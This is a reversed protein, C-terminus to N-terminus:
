LFRLQMMNGTLNRLNWNAIALVIHEVVQVTERGSEQRRVDNGKLQWCFLHGLAALESLGTWKRKLNQALISCRPLSHTM